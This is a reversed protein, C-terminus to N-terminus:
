HQVSVSGREVLGVGGGTAASLLPDHCWWFPGREPKDLVHKNPQLVQQKNPQTVRVCNVKGHKSAENLTTDETEDTDKAVDCCKEVMKESVTSPNSFLNVKIHGDDRKKKNSNDSEDAARKKAFGMNNAKSLPPKAANFETKEM